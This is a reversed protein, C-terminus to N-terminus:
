EGGREKSKCLAELKARITTLNTMESRAAERENPGFTSSIDRLHAIEQDIAALRGLLDFVSEKKAQEFDFLEGAHTEAQPIDRIIELEGPNEAGYDINIFDTGEFGRM